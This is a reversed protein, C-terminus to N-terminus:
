RARDRSKAESEDRRVAKPRGGAAGVGAARDTRGEPHRLDEENARTALRYLEDADDVERVKLSDLHGEVTRALVGRGRLLGNVFESADIARTEHREEIASLVFSGVRTLSEISAEWSYTTGEAGYVSDNVLYTEVLMQWPVREGSALKMTESEDYIRYVNGNGQVSVAEYCDM